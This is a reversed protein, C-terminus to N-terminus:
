RHRSNAQGRGPRLIEEAGGPPDGARADLPDARRQLAVDEVDGVMQAPDVDEREAARAAGGEDGLRLDRGRRHDAPEGPEVAGDITLRSFRSPTASCILWSRSASASFQAIVTKGSPVVVSPLDSSGNL